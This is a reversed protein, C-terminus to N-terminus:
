IISTKLKKSINTNYNDFVFTELNSNNFVELSNYYTINEFGKLEFLNNNIIKIKGGVYELNKFYENSLLQNCNRIILDNEIFIIKNLSDLYLASDSEIVLSSFISDSNFNNIDTQNTYTVTDQALLLCNLTVLILLISKM